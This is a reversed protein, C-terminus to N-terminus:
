GLTKFFANQDSEYYHNTKDEATERGRGTLRLRFGGLRDAIFARLKDGVVEVGALPAGGAVTQLLPRFGGNLVMEFLGNFATFELPFRNINFLRFVFMKGPIKM